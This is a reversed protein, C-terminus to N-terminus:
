ADYMFVLCSLDMTFWSRYPRCVRVPLCACVSVCLCVRVPLCACASVCLCVSLCACVFVCLCVVCLCVRVSLCSVTHACLVHKYSCSFHLGIFHVCYVYAVGNIVGWMCSTRAEFSAALLAMHKAARRGASRVCMCVGVYTHMCTAVGETESRRWTLMRAKICGYVYLALNHVHCSLPFEHCAPMLCWLFMMWTHWCTQESCSYHGCSLPMIYIYIYTYIYVYIYVYIIITMGYVRASVCVSYTCMVHMSSYSCSFHLDVSISAINVRSVCVCGDVVGWMCSTRAEFSAALWTGGRCQTCVYM